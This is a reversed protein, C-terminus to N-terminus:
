ERWLQSKSAFTLHTCTSDTHLPFLVSYYMVLREEDLNFPPCAYAPPEPHARFLKDM